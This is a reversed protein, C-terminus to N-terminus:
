GCRISSTPFVFPSSPQALAMICLSPVIAAEGFEYYLPVSTLLAALVNYVSTIALRGLQRTGKLIALEGGCVATLAVVPSLLMFHLTHDGWSFTWRNLLPSLVICIM